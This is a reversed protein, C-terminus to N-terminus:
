NGFNYNFYKRKRKAIRNPGTNIESYKSLVENVIGACKERDDIIIGVFGLRKM